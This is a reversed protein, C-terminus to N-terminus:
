MSAYLLQATVHHFELAQEEQLPSDDSRIAFLKDTAPTSASTGEIQEPFLDIVNAIYKDMSIEVTGPNTYNFKMGLYDQIPGITEKLNMGYISKLNNIVDMVASKDVHSLTLDDVHWSVTLQKGNVIKNAVCPDYPNIEYGM